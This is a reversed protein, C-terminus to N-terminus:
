CFSFDSETPKAIATSYKTKGHVMLETNKHWHSRHIIRLNREITVTSKATTVQLKCELAQIPLTKDIVQQTKRANVSSKTQSTDCLQSLNTGLQVNASHPSEWRVRRHTTASNPLCWNTRISSSCRTVTTRESAHAICKSLIIRLCDSLEQFPTAIGMPPCWRKLRVRLATLALM